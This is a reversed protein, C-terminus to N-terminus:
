GNLLDMAKRLSTHMRNFSRTVHAVEDKGHVPLQELDLEGQSIRDATASIRRLPRVVILYLGTDVIAVALLFVLGLNLILGSFAHRAMDEPVSTPVAIIQAGVVEGNNWGFGNTSGYRRILGAPAVAPQSHCEVCGQEMRIPHALYLLTGTASERTRVLQQQNPDNRFYNIIDAEWDTARDRLNTPNLAAERYTYDPYQRRLQEFTTTAAFFPITQPLFNETNQQTHELLPTIEHDTYSRTANASASILSAERLVEANAQRQLFSRAEVAILAL